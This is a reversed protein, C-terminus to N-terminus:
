QANLEESVHKEVAQKVTMDLVAKLVHPVQCIGSGGYDKYIISIVGTYVFYFKQARNGALPVVARIVGAYKGMTARPVKYFEEVTVEVDFTM